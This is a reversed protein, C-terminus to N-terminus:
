EHTLHQVMRQGWPIKLFYGPYLMCFTSSQELQECSCDGLSFLLITWASPMACVCQEYDSLSPQNGGWMSDDIQGSPWYFHQGVREAGTWVGDDYQQWNNQAYNRLAILEDQTEIYILHGGCLADGQM